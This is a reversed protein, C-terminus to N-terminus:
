CSFSNFSCNVSYVEENSDTVNLTVAEVFRDGAASTYVVNFSYADTGAASDQNDFDILATVEGTASVAFQAADAGEISFGGRVTGDTATDSIVFSQLSTSLVGDGSNNTADAPDLTTDVANFRIGQSESVSLTSRSAKVTAASTNDVVAMTLEDTFTEGTTGDTFTISFSYSNSDTAVFNLADQTEFTTTGDAATVVNFLAADTGNWPIHAQEVLRM